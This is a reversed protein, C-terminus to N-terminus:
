TRRTKRPRVRVHVRHNFRASSLWPGLKRGEVEIRADREKQFYALISFLTANAEDFAERAIDGHLGPEGLSAAAAAPGSPMLRYLYIEATDGGFGNKGYFADSLDSWISLAQVMSLRIVIAGPRQGGDNQIGPSVM